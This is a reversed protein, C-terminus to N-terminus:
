IAYIKINQIFMFLKFEKRIRLYTVYKYKTAATTPELGM